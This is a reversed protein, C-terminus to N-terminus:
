WIGSYCHFPFWHTAINVDGCVSALSYLNGSLGFCCEFLFNLLNLCCQSKIMEHMKEVLTSCQEEWQYTAIYSQRLLIAEKLRVKIKKKKRFFFSISLSSHDDYYIKWNLCSSPLLRFFLLAQFGHGGCYRHSARGVSSHLWM